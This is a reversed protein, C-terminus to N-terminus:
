KPEEFNITEILMENLVDTHMTLRELQQVENRAASLQHFMFNTVLAIATREVECLRQPAHAKMWEAMQTPRHETLWDIIEKTSFNDLANIDSITIWGAADMCDNFVIPDVRAVKNLLSPIMRHACVQETITTLTSDVNTDLMEQILEAWDCESVITSIDLEIEVDDLELTGVYARAATNFSPM